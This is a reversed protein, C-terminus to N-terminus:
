FGPFGPPHFPITTAPFHGYFSTAFGIPDTWKGSRLWDAVSIGNLLHNPADSWLNRVGLDRLGLIGFFLALAAPLILRLPNQNQESPEVVRSIEKTALQM